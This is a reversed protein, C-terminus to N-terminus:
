SRSIFSFVEADAFKPLPAPECSIYAACYNNYANVAVFENIKLVYEDILELYRYLYRRRQKMSYAACM